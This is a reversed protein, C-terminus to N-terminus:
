GQRYDGDPSIIMHKEKSFKHVLVGIVDDAEMRPLDIVKWGFVNKCATLIDEGNEFFAKWDMSKDMPKRNKKYEPFPESRWYPKRDVCIVIQGYDRRFRSNVMRLTNLMRFLHISEMTVGPPLKEGKKMKKMSAVTSHASSILVPSYDVLIM